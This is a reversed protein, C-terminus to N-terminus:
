SARFSGKENRVGRTTRTKRKRKKVTQTRSGMLVKHM